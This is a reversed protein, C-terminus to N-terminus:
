AGAQRIAHVREGYRHVAIFSAAYHSTARFTPGLREGGIGLAVYQPLIGARDRRVARRERERVAASTSM